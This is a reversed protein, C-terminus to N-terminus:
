MMYERLTNENRKANKQHSHGLKNESVKVSPIMRGDGYRVLINIIM